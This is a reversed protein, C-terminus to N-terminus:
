EITLLKLEDQEKHGELFAKRETAFVPYVILRYEDIQAVGTALM